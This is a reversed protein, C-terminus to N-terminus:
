TLNEEAKQAHHIESTYYGNMWAGRLMISLQAKIYEPSLDRVEFTKAFEDLNRSLYGEREATANTM